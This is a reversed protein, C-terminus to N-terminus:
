REKIPVERLKVISSSLMSFAVVERISGEELAVTFIKENVEKGIDQEFIHGCYYDRCM